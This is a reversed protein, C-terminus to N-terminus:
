GVWNVDEDVSNVSPLPKSIPVERRGFGNGNAAGNPITNVQSPEDREPEATLPTSNASDPAAMGLPRVTVVDGNSLAIRQLQTHPNISSGSHQTNGTQTNNSQSSLRRNSLSPDRRASPPSRTPLPPQPARNEPIVVKEMVWEITQEKLWGRAVLIEGFRMGTIKQDNLAVKVQDETILGADVLHSGLRKVKANPAPQVPYFESRDRM